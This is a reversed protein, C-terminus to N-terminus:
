ILFVNYILLMNNNVANSYCFKLLWHSKGFFWGFVSKGIQGTLSQM